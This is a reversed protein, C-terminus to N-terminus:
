YIQRLTLFLFFFFLSSNATETQPVPSGPPAGSLTRHHV